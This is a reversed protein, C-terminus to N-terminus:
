GIYGFIFHEDLMKDILRAKESKASDIPEFCEPAILDCNVCQWRIGIMAISFRQFEHKCM